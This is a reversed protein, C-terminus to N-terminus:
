KNETLENLWTGDKKKMSDEISTFIITGRRARSM